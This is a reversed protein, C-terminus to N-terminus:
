SSHSSSVSIIGLYQINFCEISVEEEEEEEQEEQEEQEQEEQEQEQEQEEEEEEEEMPVVAWQPRQDTSCHGEM